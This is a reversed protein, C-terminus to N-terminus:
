GLMPPVNRRQRRQFAAAGALGVGLLLVTAPEPVSTTQLHLNAGELRVSEYLLANTTVRISLLGSAIEDGFMGLNLALPQSGLVGLYQYGGGSLAFLSFSELLDLGSFDLTLEASEVPDGLGATNVTFEYSQQACVILCSNALSYGNSDGWFGNAVQEFDGTSSINVGFDITGARAPMASATWL